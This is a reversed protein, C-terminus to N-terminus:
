SQLSCALLPQWVEAACDEQISEGCMHCIGKIYACSQCYQADPEHLTSKCTKCKSASPQWRCVLAHSLSLAASMVAETLWRLLPLSSRM